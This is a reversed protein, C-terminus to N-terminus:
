GKCFSRSQLSHKAMDEEEVSDAVGTAEGVRPKDWSHVAWMAQTACGISATRHEVEVEQGM